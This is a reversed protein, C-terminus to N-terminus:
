DAREDGAFAPFICARGTSPASTLVEGAICLAPEQEYMIRDYVYGVRM